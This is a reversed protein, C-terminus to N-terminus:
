HSRVPSHKGEACSAAAHSAAPEEDWLGLLLQWTAPVSAPHRQPSPRQMEASWTHIHCYNSVMKLVSTTIDQTM